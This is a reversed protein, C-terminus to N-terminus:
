PFNKIQSVQGTTKASDKFSQIINENNGGPLPDPQNAHMTTIDIDACDSSDQAQNNLNTVQAASVYETESAIIQNQKLNKTKFKEANSAILVEDEGQMWELNDERISVNAYFPNHKKLWLLAEVVNKKNVRLSKPYVASTDKNGIYRIFVVMTEKCLPLENCM